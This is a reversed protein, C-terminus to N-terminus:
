KWRMASPPSWGVKMELYQEIMEDSAIVMEYRHQPHIVTESTSLGKLACLLVLTSRSFAGFTLRLLKTVDPFHHIKIEKRRDFRNTVEGMLLINPKIDKKYEALSKCRQLFVDDKILLNVGLQVAYIEAQKFSTLRTGEILSLLVDQLYNPYCYVSTEEVTHYDGNIDEDKVFQEITPQKGKVTFTLEPIGFESADENDSVNIDKRNNNRSDHM